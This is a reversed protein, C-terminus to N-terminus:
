KIINVIPSHGINLIDNLLNSSDTNLARKIEIFELTDLKKSKHISHLINFNENFNCFHSESKLHDAFSSKCDDKDIERHHERFRTAFNRGTQGIYFKSCSACNLRYVGSKNLPEISYKKNTLSQALSNQTYFAIKSQTSSSILKSIEISQQGTFLLKSYSLTDKIKINPYILSLTHKKIKNELINNVLSPSYGNNFAIQKITNLEKNYNSPSLPTKILRYILSHLAAHKHSLPHQSTAHIISDTQTPKRYIDFVLNNQSKSITLDLFNISNNHEVELTFQITPYVSNLHHLLQHLQRHTGTWICFVDDVYRYWSHIYKILPIKSHLFQTEFYNMFIEALLPSLPSGMPVGQSQSYFKNNFKFYNQSVCLKFSSLLETSIAPNIKNQHLIDKIIEITEPIPINTFLSTVDFSALTANHPIPTNKVKSIFDMSNIVSYLPKFNTLSRFLNNLTKAVKQTPANVYSVVPRIPTSPKHIKPLGYLRPSIPNMVLYTRSYRNFISECSNVLSKVEQQFKPTPDRPLISFIDNKLFEEVKNDYTERNMIVVTNGKDAKSIILNETDIKQKITALVNYENSKHYKINRLIKAARYKVEMDNSLAIESDAVLHTFNKKSISLIKFREGPSALKPAAAKRHRRKGDKSGGVM